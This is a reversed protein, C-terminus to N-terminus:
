RSLRSLQRSVKLPKDEPGRFHSKVRTIKSLCVTCRPQGISGDSIARHNPRFLSSDYNEIHRWFGKVFWHCSWDVHRHGSEGEPDRRARRLTIVNVENHKLSRAIRRRTGRETQPRHHAAIESELMAWTILIWHLVSTGVDVESHVPYREGYAIVVTHNIILDGCDEQAGAVSEPYDTPDGARAWFVLRVAPVSRSSDRGFADKGAFRMTEPGWSIARISISGGTREITPVPRDFWLFGRESPLDGEEIAEVGKQKLTETYVGELVDVMHSDVQFTEAAFLDRGLLRSFSLACDWDLPAKYPYFMVRRRHTSIEPYQGSMGQLWTLLSMSPHAYRDRLDAQLDLVQSARLNLTATM